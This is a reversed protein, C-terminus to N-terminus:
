DNKRRLDDTGLEREQYTILFALNTVAHWLHPFGSEPDIEEGKLFKNIHRMCAALVRHHEMGGLWNSRGYKTCGFGMVQAVAETLEPPVLTLDPKNSDHKLAKDNM